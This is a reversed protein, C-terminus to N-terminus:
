ASYWLCGDFCIFMKELHDKVLTQSKSSGEVKAEKEKPGTKNGVAAQGGNLIM